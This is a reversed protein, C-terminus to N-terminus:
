PTHQTKRKRKWKHAKKLWTDFSHQVNESRTMWELNSVHNNNKNWDKHNVELKNKPNEIFHLAVLRHIRFTKTKGNKSLVNKVYWKPDCSTKLIKHIKFKVSLVEWKENIKYMWEYSVIDVFM